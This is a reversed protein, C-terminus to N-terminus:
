IRTSQTTMFRGAATQYHHQRSTKVHLGARQVAQATGMCRNTGSDLLVRFLEDRQTKANRIVIVVETSPLPKDEEDDSEEESTSAMSKNGM